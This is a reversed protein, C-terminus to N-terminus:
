HKSPLINSYRPQCTVDGNSYCMCQQTCGDYFKEDRMYTQNKYVCGDQPVTPEDKRTGSERPEGHCVLMECCELDSPDKQVVCGTAIEADDDRRYNCRPQLFSYVLFVRSIFYAMFEVEHIMKNEAYYYYVSWAFFSELLRADVNTIADM